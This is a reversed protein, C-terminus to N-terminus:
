EAVVTPAPAKRALQPETRALWRWTFRVSFRWLVIGMLIGAFGDIAYHWGLHVSGVLVAATFASMLWGITRNAAFGLCACTTPISVHLSPFAAIGAPDVDRRIYGDWLWEQIKLAMIPTRRAQAHLQDLLPAFSPDGTVRELYVPGAAPLLIALIVGGVVWNLGLAFIFSLRLPHRMPLVAVALIAAFLVLFWALYVGDLIKTAWVGPLIRHSLVWPDRGLFIARDIRLFLHDWIFPAFKAINVKFTFYLYSTALLLAIALPLRLLLIEPWANKVFGRMTDVSQRVPRPARQVWVLAVTVCGALFAPLLGILNGILLDLDGTVREDSEDLFILTSFYLSVVLLGSPLHARLGDFAADRLRASQTKRDREVHFARFENAEANWAALSM